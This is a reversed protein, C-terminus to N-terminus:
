ITSLSEKGLVTINHLLSYSGEVDAHKFTINGDTNVEFELECYSVYELDLKYAAVNGVDKKKDAFAVSHCHVEAGIAVFDDSFSLISFEKIRADPTHHVDVNYYGSFDLLQELVEALQNNLYGNLNMKFIYDQLIERVKVEGSNYADLVDKLSRTHLLGHNTENCFNELDRDQSVVYCHPIANLDMHQILNHLNIADPFENKKHKKGFPASGKFYSDLLVSVNIRNIDIIETHCDDLYQEFEKFAVEKLRQEYEDLSQGTSLIDKRLFPSKRLNSVDDQAQKEIWSKVENIVVDTTINDFNGEECLEKFASFMTNELSLKGQIYCQSDIFVYRPIDM